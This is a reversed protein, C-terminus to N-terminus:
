KGAVNKHLQKWSLDQTFIFAIWPANDKAQTNETGRISFSFPSNDARVLLSTSVSTVGSRNHNINFGASLHFRNYQYNGSLGASIIEDKTQYPNNNFFSQLYTVNASFNLNQGTHNPRNYNLSSVFTLEKENGVANLRNSIGSRM